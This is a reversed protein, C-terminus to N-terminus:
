PTTMSVTATSTRTGRRRHARRVAMAGSAAGLAPIAYGAARLARLRLLMTARDNVRPFPEDPVPVGLFDCLPEWGDAVDFVLLRDPPVTSRVHDTWREYVDIAHARDHLRGDFLRGWVLQDSMRFPREVVPIRRMWPVVHDHARGITEVTSEYWRDAPRVTHLVKADPFAELLEEWVVSAPFDVASGYGDFLRHWDVPRGEAVDLWVRAHSPRKMVEEMHYCPGFGIRELAHKTSMTGTRGFGSGIVRIV